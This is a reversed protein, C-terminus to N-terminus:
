LFVTVLLIHSTSVGGRGEGGKGEGGRGEGGRGEGGRVPEKMVGYPSLNYTILKKGNEDKLHLSQFYLM